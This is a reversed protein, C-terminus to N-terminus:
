SLFEFVLQVLFGVIFQSGFLLQTKLHLIVLLYTM